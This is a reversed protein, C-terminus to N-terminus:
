SFFYFLFRTFFPKLCLPDLFCTNHYIKLLSKKLSFHFSSTQGRVVVDCLPSPFPRLKFSSEGSICMHGPLGQPVLCLRTLSSLPRWSVLKLPKPLLSVVSFPGSFQRLHFQLSRCVREVFM